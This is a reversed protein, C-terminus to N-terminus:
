LKREEKKGYLFCMYAFPVLATLAVYMKHFEEERPNLYSKPCEWILPYRLGIIM